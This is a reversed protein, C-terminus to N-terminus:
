GIIERVLKEVDDISMGSIGLLKNSLKESFNGGYGAGWCARAIFGLASNTVEKPDNSKLMEYSKEEIKATSVINTSWEKGDIRKTIDILQYLWLRGLLQFDLRPSCFMAVM